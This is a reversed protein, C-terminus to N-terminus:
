SKIIQVNGFDYTQCYNGKDKQLKSQFYGRTEFGKCLRQRMHTECDKPLKEGSLM